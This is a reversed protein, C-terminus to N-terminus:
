SVAIILLGSLILSVAILWLTVNRGTIWPRDDKNLIYFLAHIVEGMIIFMAFFAILIHQEETLTSATFAGAALATLLNGASSIIEKSRLALVFLFLYHSTLLCPLIFVLPKAPFELTTANIFSGMVIYGTVATGARILWSLSGSLKWNHLHWKM